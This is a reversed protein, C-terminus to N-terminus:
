KSITIINNNELLKKTIWFISFYFKFFRTNIKLLIIKGIPLNPYRYNISGLAITKNPIDPEPFLAVPLEKNPNSESNLNSSDSPESDQVDVIQKDGHM